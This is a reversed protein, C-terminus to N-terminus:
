DFGSLFLVREDGPVRLYYGNRKEVRKTAVKFKEDISGKPPPSNKQWNDLLTNKKSNIREKLEGPVSELPIEGLKVFYFSLEQNFYFFIIRRLFYIFCVCYGHGACDRLFVSLCGLAATLAGLNVCLLFKGSSSGIVTLILSVVIFIVIFGILNRVV